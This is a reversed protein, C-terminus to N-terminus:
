WHRGLDNFLEEDDRANAILLRISKAMEGKTPKSPDDALAMYILKEMADLVCTISCLRLELICLQWEQLCAMSICCSHLTLLTV